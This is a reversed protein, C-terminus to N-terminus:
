RNCRVARCASGAWASNHSCTRLAMETHLKVVLTVVGPGLQTSAAGLADSTQLAHRGQVRRRCQSCHEVQIDFQRVLPRVKPLDEQYQLAVRTM